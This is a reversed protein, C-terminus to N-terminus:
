FLRQKGLLGRITMIKGIHYGRHLNTGLLLDAITGSRNKGPIVRDVDESALQLMSEQVENFSQIVEQLSPLTDDGTTGTRFLDTYRAPLLVEPGGMHGVYSAESVALHGVQWVIPALCQPRALAEEETVDQLTGELWEASTQLQAVIRESWTM